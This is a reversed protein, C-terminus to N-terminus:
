GGIKPFCIARWRTVRINSFYRAARSYAKFWYKSLLDNNKVIATSYVMKVFIFVLLFFFRPTKTYYRKLHTYVHICSPTPRPARRLTKQSKVSSDFQVTKWSAM